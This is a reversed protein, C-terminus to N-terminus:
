YVCCDINTPLIIKRSTPNHPETQEESGGSISKDSKGVTGGVSGPQGFVTAPLSMLMLVSVLIAIPRMVLRFGQPGMKGCRQVPRLAYPRGQVAGM